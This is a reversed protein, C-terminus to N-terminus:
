SPSTMPRIAENDAFPKYSLTVFGKAYINAKIAPNDKTAETALASGGLVIGKNGGLIATSSRKSVSVIFPSAPHYALCYSTSSSNTLDIM